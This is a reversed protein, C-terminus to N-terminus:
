ILFLLSFMQWVSRIKELAMDNCRFGRKKRYRYTKFSQFIIYRNCNYLSLVRDEIRAIRARIDLSQESPYLLAQTSRSTPLGQSSEPKRM